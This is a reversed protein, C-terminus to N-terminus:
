DRKSSTTVSIVGLGNKGFWDDRGGHLHISSGISVASVKRSVDAYISRFRFYQKSNMHRQMNDKRSFDKQCVAYSWNM